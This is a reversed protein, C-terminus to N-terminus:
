FKKRMRLKITYSSGIEFGITSFLINGTASPGANNQLGGTRDYDFVNVSALNMIVVPDDAEWLLQLIGGVVEYEVHLIKLLRPSDTLLSKDVKLVLTENDGESIGSFLWVTNLRNDYTIQSKTQM